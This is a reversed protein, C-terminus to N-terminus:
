NFHHGTNLFEGNFYDILTEQKKGSSEREREGKKKIHQQLGHLM